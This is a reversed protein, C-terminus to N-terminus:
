YSTSVSPSDKRDRYSIKTLDLPGCSRQPKSKRDTTKMEEVTKANHFDMPFKGSSCMKPQIQAYRASPLVLGNALQVALNTRSLGNILLQKTYFTTPIDGGFRKKM